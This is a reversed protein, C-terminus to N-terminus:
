SAYGRGDGGPFWEARHPREYLGLNIEWTASRDASIFLAAPEVGAYLVGPEDNRGPIIHWIQNIKEQAATPIEDEAITSRVEDPTPM